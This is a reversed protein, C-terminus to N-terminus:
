PKHAALWDIWVQWMDGQRIPDAPSHGRIPILYFKTEVGNDELSRYLSIAQTFPVRFDESDSMVLTPAKIKTQLSAPSQQWLQAAGDGKYPSAGLRAAQAVNGDSLDFQHQWNTVPAGSVAATWADPYRGLLWTTMYGGYSWGSVLPKAPAVDPRARVAAVGAMVDQGPGEGADNYIAAKFANGLNDSGRYNPEFVIFGRAALAQPGITFRLRSASNPGGHIILALPYKAGPAADPPLTLVGDITNGQPGKWHVAEMRGLKAGAIWANVSTLKRPAARVSDMVYLEGPTEPSQGIFAFAGKSSVDGDVWFGNAPMVSGITLKQAKGGLTVTWLGVGLGDNGSVLLSKGDPLWWTGFISRDVEAGSLSRSPVNAGQVLMVDQNGAPAFDHQAWFVVNRGDPSPQPYGLYKTEPAIATITGSALDLRELQAQSRDGSSPSVQRVFLIAKGDPTFKLPSSPPGPPLVTPLSWAGSTLRREGSGDADALWIHTSRPKERVTIDDHGFYFGTHFKDAGKLEPAPDTAAFAIARSDPSWTFQQVPARAHTVQRADGGDLPAVFVQLRKDGDPALFALAKGDPSWRPQAAHRRDQTFARRAGSAVDVLVIETRYEDDELNARSEVLAITQGDPSFQLASQTVIRAFDAAVIPQPAAVTQALGAGHLPAVAIGVLASTRLALAWLRYAHKQM